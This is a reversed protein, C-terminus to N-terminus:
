KRPDKRYYNIRIDHIEYVSIHPNNKMAEDLARQLENFAEPISRAYVIGWGGRCHPTKYMLQIM